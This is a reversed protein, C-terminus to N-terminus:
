ADRRQFLLYSALMLVAATGGFVITGGTATLPSGFMTHPESLVNVMQRGADFPLFRLKDMDDRLGPVLAFFAHFLSEVLLPWLFIMVLAFAQSRTVSTFAMALWTLIVVYLLNRALIGWTQSDFVPLYDGVFVMGILGSLLMTVLTVAAVWVAVVVYKAVWFSARSSLATLSARIMGHRYEHGWGFIGVIAMMFGVISPVQGTASLQTVMAAGLVDIDQATPPTRAFEHGAIASVLTSIGVGVVVALISLWWTSRITRIRALEYRFAHTM